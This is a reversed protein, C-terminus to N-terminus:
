DEIGNLYINKIWEKDNRNEKTTSLPFSIMKKIHTSLLLLEGNLYINKIWEKDNRYEKTTSLPFSIM